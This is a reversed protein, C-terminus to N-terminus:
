IRDTQSRRGGNAGTAAGARAIRPSTTARMAKTPSKQRGKRSNWKLLTQLYWPNLIVRRRRMLSLRSRPRVGKKSLLLSYKHLLNHHKLLNKGKRKNANKWLLNSEKKRWKRRMAKGAAAQVLDLKMVATTTSEM